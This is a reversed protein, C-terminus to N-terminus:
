REASIDLLVAAGLTWVALLFGVAFPLLQCFAHGRRRLNPGDGDMGVVRLGDEDAGLTADVPGLVAAVAKLAHVHGVAAVNPGDFEM